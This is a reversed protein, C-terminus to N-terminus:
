VDGTMQGTADRMRRDIMDVLKRLEDGTLRTYTVALRKKQEDSMSGYWHEIIREILTAKTEM